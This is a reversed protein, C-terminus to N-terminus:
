SEFDENRHPRNYGNQERIIARWGIDNRLYVDDWDIKAAVEYASVQAASVTDGM